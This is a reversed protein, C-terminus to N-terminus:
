AHMPATIHHWEGAGTLNTTLYYPRAASSFRCHRFQSRAEVQQLDQVAARPAGPPTLPGQAFAIRCRSPSCPFCCASSSIQRVTM